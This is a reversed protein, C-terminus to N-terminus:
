YTQRAGGHNLNSIKWAEARHACHRNKEQKLPKRQTEKELGFVQMSSQNAQISLHNTKQNMKKKYLLNM